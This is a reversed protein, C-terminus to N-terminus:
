LPLKCSNKVPWRTLFLLGMREQSGFCPQTLGM